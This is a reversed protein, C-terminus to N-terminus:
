SNNSNFTQQQRGGAHRPRASRLLRVASLRGYVNVRAIGMTCTGGMFVDPSRIVVILVEFLGMRAGVLIITTLWVGVRCLLTLVGVVM